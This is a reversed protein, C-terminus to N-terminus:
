KEIKSLTNLITQHLEADPNYETVTISYTRSGTSFIYMTQSVTIEYEAMTTNFSFARVSLGNQTYEELTVDSISMGEDELSASMMNKFDRLSLELMLAPTEGDIQINTTSTASSIEFEVGTGEKTWGEPYAFSIDDNVFLTYGDPAPSTTATTTATTTSKPKQSSGGGVNGVDEEATTTAATTTTAAPEDSEDCSAFIASMSLVLVLCMFISLFRKM